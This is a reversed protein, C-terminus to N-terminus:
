TATCPRANQQVVTWQKTNSITAPYEIQIPQAQKSAHETNFRKGEDLIWDFVIRRLGKKM